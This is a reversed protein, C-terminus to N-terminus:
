NEGEVKYVVLKGDEVKVAYQSNKTKLQSALRELDVEDNAKLFNKLIEENSYAVPTITFETGDEFNSIFKIYAYNETLNAVLRIDGDISPNGGLLLVAYQVTVASGTNCTNDHINGGTITLTTPLALEKNGVLYIVGGRNTATNNFFEGGDITAVSGEGFAIAGGNAATNGTFTGGHIAMVEVYQYIAGGLGVATNNKFEGGYIYLNGRSNIAGGNYMTSQNGEFTGGNIFVSSLSSVFLGAGSRPSTNDKILGSRMFMHSYKSTAMYVGAGYGDGTINNGEITGGELTLSKGNYVGAGNGEATTNNKITGGYLNLAGYNFVGAGTLKGTTQNQSIEGGFMNVQGFHNFIAGGGCNENGYGSDFAYNRSSIINRTLTVGDYINLIGNNLVTVLSANVGEINNGDIILNYQGERDEGLNLTSKFDVVFFDGKFQSDRVLAADKIGIITFVGNGLTITHTITIPKYVVVLRGATELAANLEEESGVFVANQSEDLLDEFTFMITVDYTPMTFAYKGNSETLIVKEGNNDLYYVELLVYRSNDGSNDVSLTFEVQETEYAKYVNEVLPVDEFDVSDVREDDTITLDYYDKTTGYLRAGMFMVFSMSDTLEVNQGNGLDLFITMLKKNYQNALNIVVREKFKYTQNVDLLGSISDDITLELDFKTCDYSIVVDADPMTFKYQGDQETVPVEDEGNMVKVNSISYEKLVKFTVESGSAANTLVDIAMDSADVGVKHTANQLIIQNNVVNFALNESVGAPKQLTIKRVQSYVNSWPDNTNFRILKNTSTDSETKYSYSAPAITFPNEIEKIIELFAYGVQKTAHFELKDSIVVDGGMKLTAYQISIHGFQGDIITIQPTAQTNKTSYLHIDKGRYTATNSTATVQNLTTKAGLDMAIGGGGYNGANQTASNETIQDGTLTLNESLSYIGGGGLATNSNIINREMIVVATDSFGLGGGRATASNTKFQCGTIRLNKSYAYLGGGQNASNGELVCDEIASVCNTVCYIGGGNSDTHNSTFTCGTITSNSGTGVYIGGGNNTSTNNTFTAGSISAEKTFHIAGGYEGATNGDFTGGTITFKHPSCICGGNKPSENGRFIGGSIVLESQNYICGGEKTTSKNNIFQGGSIILQPNTNTGAYSYIAGGLGATQNGEIVGGKIITVSKNIIAGGNANSATTKNGKIEGGEMTFVAMDDVFVGAGSNTSTNNNIKGSKFTVQANEDLRLGAGYTKATNSTIEAGDITVVANNNAHVPGYGGTNDHIKVAGFNATASKIYVIAGGSEVQNQYIEGGTINATVKNNIFLLGTSSGTNLYFEGSTMNFASGENNYIIGYRDTVGEELANDHVKAGALNLTGSNYVVVGRENGLFNKLEVGDGLTLTGNNLIASTTKLVSQGDFVISGQEAEFKVSASDLISFLNGDFEAARKLEVNGTASFTVNGSVELTEPIEISTMLNIQKNAENEALTTKLEEFNNVEYAKVSIKNHGGFLLALTGSLVLSFVAALSIILKRFTKNM